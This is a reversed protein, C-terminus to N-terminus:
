LPGRGSGVISMSEERIRIGGGGGGNREIGRKEAYLEDDYSHFCRGQLVDSEAIIWIHGTSIGATATLPWLRKSTERTNSHWLVRMRRDVHALIGVGFQQIGFEHELQYKSTLSIGFKPCLSFTAKGSSFPAAIKWYCESLQFSGSNEIAAWKLQIECERLGGSM